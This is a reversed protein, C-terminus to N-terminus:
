QQEFKRLIREPYSQIRLHEATVIAHLEDVAPLPAGAPAQHNVVLYDFSRIYTLEEQATALRAAVEDKSESRRAELRAHLQAIDPTVIFILVARPYAARIALAGNVEPKIVLDDGGALTTEVYSRPTGYLNGAYERWELFDGSRLRAEFQDKTVFHYDHGDQEGERPARTTASVSYRMRPMRELLARVVTDKGAGSPGSVVLLLGPGVLKTRSGESAGGQPAEAPAGDLRQAPDPRVLLIGM